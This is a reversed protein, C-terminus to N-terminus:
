AGRWTGAAGEGPTGPVVFEVDDTLLALAEDLTPQGMAAYLRKIKQVNASDPM